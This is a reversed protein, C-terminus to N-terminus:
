ILHQIYDLATYPPPNTRGLWCPKDGADVTEATIQQCYSTCVYFVFCLLYTHSLPRHTKPPEHQQYTDGGHSNNRQTRCLASVSVRRGVTEARVVIVAGPM